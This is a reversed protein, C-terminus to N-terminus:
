GIDGTFGDPIVGRFRGAFLIYQEHQLLPSIPSGMQPNALEPEITPSLEGGASAFAAAAKDRLAEFAARYFAPDAISALDDRVPIEFTVDVVASRM